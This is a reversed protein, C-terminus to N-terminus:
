PKGMVNARTRLRSRIETPAAATAQHMTRRTSPRGRRVVQPQPTLDTEPGSGQEMTVGGPTSLQTDVVSMHAHFQQVLECDNASHPTSAATALVSARSVASAPLTSDTDSGSDTDEGEDDNESTLNMSGPRPAVIPVSPGATFSPGHPPIESRMSLSSATQPCSTGESAHSTAHHSHFPPIIIADSRVLPRTITNSRSPAPRASSLSTHSTSPLAPLTSALPLQSQLIARRHSAM